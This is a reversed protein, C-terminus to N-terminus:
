PPPHDRAAARRRRVHAPGVQRPQRRASRQRRRDQATKLEHCPDCRLRLNARATPGGEALPVLHDIELDLRNGCDVCRPGDFRPPEGLRLALRVKAPIHRGWTKIHRLDDGDFFVGSLFADDAIEKAVQPAVPGVGPIHCHEDAAVDTWGRTAVEHSVLLVMDTRGSPRGGGNLTSALADALRSAFPEDGGDRGLRRAEAELRNVIPTGVHPELDAEIHIMGLDTIRHSARRARRQRDALCGRDSDLVAARAQEKLVHFPQRRAVDILHEASGRAQTEAKAIETAQDLSVVGSRVADKLAPTDGLRRSLGLVTRAKGVTTGTQRALTSADGVRSALMATAGACVREGEAYAALLRGALGRDVAKPDLSRLEERLAQVASEVRSFEMVSMM